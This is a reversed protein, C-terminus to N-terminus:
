YPLDLDFVVCRRRVGWNCLFIQGCTMLGLTVTLELIIAALNALM